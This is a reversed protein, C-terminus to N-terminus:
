HPAAPDPSRPPPCNVELGAKLAAIAEKYHGLAMRATAKRQLAKVQLGPGYSYMTLCTRPVMGLLQSCNGASPGGEGRM